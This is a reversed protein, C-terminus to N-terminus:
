IKFFNRIRFESNYFVSRLFISLILFNLPKGLLIEATNSPKIIEGISVLTCLFYCQWIFKGRFTSSSFSPIKTRFGKYILACRYEAHGFIGAKLKHGHM